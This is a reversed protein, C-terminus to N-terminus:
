CPGTANWNASNNYTISGTESIQTRNYYIATGLVQLGSGLTQVCLDNGCNMSSSGNYTCGTWQVHFSYVYSQNGGSHSVTCSPGSVQEVLYGTYAYGTTCSDTWTGANSNPSGNIPGYNVDNNTVSASDALAPSSTTFIALLLALAVPMIKTLSM